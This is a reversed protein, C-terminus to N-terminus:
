LSETFKFWLCKIAKTNLERNIGKLELIPTLDEKRTNKPIKQLSTTFDFLGGTYRPHTTDNLLKSASGHLKESYMAIMRHAQSPVFSLYFCCGTPAKACNCIKIPVPLTRPELM